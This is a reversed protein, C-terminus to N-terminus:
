NQGRLEEKPKLGRTQRLLGLSTLGSWVWGAFFLALGTAALWVGPHDQPIQLGEYYATIWQVGGVLALLVGTIGLTIQVFGALRGGIVSGLGPCVLLNIGLCAWAESRNLPKRRWPLSIKRFLSM